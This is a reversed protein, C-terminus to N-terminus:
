RIFFKKYKKLYEVGCDTIRMILSAVLPCMCIAVGIKWKEINECFIERCVDRVIIHSLYLPLSLKGLYEICSNSQIHYTNKSFSLIVGLMCFVFAIISINEHYSGYMYLMVIFYCTLKLITLLIKSLNTLSLNDLKETMACSWAGLMMIFLGRLFRTDFMSFIIKGNIFYGYNLFIIGLGFIGMIPFIIKSAWEYSYLLIPYLIFFAMMMTSLYWDVNLKINGEFIFGASDFLLIRPLSLVSNFFIDKLKNHQIFLRLLLMQFVVTVLYYAYFNGIKRKITKYTTIKKASKAM